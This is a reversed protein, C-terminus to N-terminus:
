PLSRLQECIRTLLIDLELARPVSKLVYRTGQPRYALLGCGDSLEQAAQALRITRAADADDIVRVALLTYCSPESQRLWGILDGQPGAGAGAQRASEAKLDITKLAAEKIRKDLDASGARGLVNRQSRQNRPSRPAGAMKTELLVKVAGTAPYVADLAHNTFVRGAVGPRTVLEKGSCHELLTCILDGFFDGKGNQNEGQTAIGAEVLQDFTWMAALFGDQAQAWRSWLGEVANVHLQRFARLNPSRIVM